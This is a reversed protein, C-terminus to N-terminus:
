LKTQVFEIIDNCTTLTPIVMEVSGLRMNLGDEIEMTLTVMDLSDANYPPALLNTDPTVDMDFHDRIIELIKDNM